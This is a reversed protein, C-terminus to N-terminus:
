PVASSPPAQCFDEWAMRNQKIYRVGGKTYVTYKNRQHSVSPFQMCEVPGNPPCILMVERAYEGAHMHTRTLMRYPMDDFFCVSRGARNCMNGYRQIVGRFPAGSYMIDYFLSQVLKRHCLVCMQRQPRESVDLHVESPLIFEVGTFAEGPRTSIFNCECSAGMVCPREYDWMPERMFSEEYSKTVVPIQPPKLCSHIGRGERGNCGSTGFLDQLVERYPVSSLIHDLNVEQCTHAQQSAGGVIQSSFHESGHPQVSDEERAPTTTLHRKADHQNCKYIADLITQCAEPASQRPFCAAIQKEKFNYISSDDLAFGKTTGTANGCPGASAAAAAATDAAAAAGRAGFFRPPLQLSLMGATAQQQDMPQTKNEASATKRGGRSSEIQRRRSAAQMELRNLLGMGFLSAGASLHPDDEEQLSKNKRNTAKRPARHKRRALGSNRRARSNKGTVRGSSSSSISSRPQNTAADPPSCNMGLQPLSMMDFITAADVNGHCFKRKKGAHPKNAVAPTPNCSPQLKQQKQEQTSKSGSAEDDEDEGSSSVVLVTRSKGGSRNSDHSLACSKHLLRARKADPCSPAVITTTTTTTTRTTTTTCTTTAAAKKSKAKEIGGRHKARALPLLSNHFANQPTHAHLTSFSQAFRELSSAANRCTNQTSADDRGSKSLSNLPVQDVPLRVGWTDPIRIM